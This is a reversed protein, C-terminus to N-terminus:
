NRVYSLCGQLWEDMEVSSHVEGNSTYFSNALDNCFSYSSSEDAMKQGWDQATQYGLRYMESQLGGGSGGGALSLGIILLLLAIVSGIAILAKNSKKQEVTSYDIPGFRSKQDVTEQNGATPPSSKEDGSAWANMSNILSDRTDSKANPMVDSPEASATASTNETFRNDTQITKCHKCLKADSQIEEACAVCKKM